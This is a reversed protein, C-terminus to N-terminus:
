FAVATEASPGNKRNRHQPRAREKASLPVAGICRLQYYGIARATMEYIKTEPWEKSATITLCTIVPMLGWEQGGYRHGAVRLVEVHGPLAYYCAESKMSTWRLEFGIRKLLDAAYVCAELETMDALM